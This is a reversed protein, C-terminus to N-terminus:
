GKFKLVILIAGTIAGVAVFFQLAPIVSYATMGKREGKGKQKKDM